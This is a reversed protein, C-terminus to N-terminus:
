EGDTIASSSADPLDAEAAGIPLTCAVGGTM